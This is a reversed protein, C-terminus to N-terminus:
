HSYVEKALEISAFISNTLPIIKILHEARICNCDDLKKDNLDFIDYDISSERIHTIKIYYGNEGLGSIANELNGCPHNSRIMPDNIWKYKSHENLESHNMTNRTRQTLIPM